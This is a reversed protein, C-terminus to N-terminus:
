RSLNAWLKSAEKHQFRAHDLAANDSWEANTARSKGYKYARSTFANKTLKSFDARLTAFIDSMDIAKGTGKKIDLYTGRVSQKGCLRKRIVHHAGGSAADSNATGKKRSTRKAAKKAAAGALKRTSSAALLRNEMAEVSGPCASGAAEPALTCDGGVDDDSDSGNDVGVNPPSLKAQPASGASEWPLVPLQRTRYLPLCPMHSALSHQQGDRYRADPESKNPQDYYRDDPESKNPQIKSSQAPRRAVHEAVSARLTEPVHQLWAMKAPVSDRSGRMRSGQLIGDLEPIDVDVPTRGDAYILNAIDPSLQSPSTPYDVIFPISARRHHKIATQLKAMESQVQREHMDYTDDCYNLIQIGRYLTRECPLEIGAKAHCTALMSTRAIRSHEKSKLYVWADQVLYNEFNFCRQNKRKISTPSPCGGARVLTALEKMQESDWPGNGIADTLTRKDAASTAQLSKVKFALENFMANIVEDRDLGVATQSEILGNADHLDQIVDIVKSTIVNSKKAAM